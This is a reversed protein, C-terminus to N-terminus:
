KETGRETEYDEILDKILYPEEDEYKIFKFLNVYPFRRYEGSAFWVNFFTIDTHKKPKSDYIYLDNDEDKDRAIYKWMSDLNKLIIYEDDTLLTKKIYESNLFDRRVCVDCGGDFLCNDCTISCCDCVINNIKDFAFDGGNLAIEVIEDKFKEKVLM